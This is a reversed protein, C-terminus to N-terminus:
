AVRVPRFSVASLGDLVVRALREDGTVRLGDRDGDPGLAAMWDRESGSVHADADPAPREDISVEGRYVRLTYHRV